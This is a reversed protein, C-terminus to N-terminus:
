KKPQSDARGMHDPKKDATGQALSKYRNFAESLMEQSSASTAQDRLFSAFARCRRIGHGKTGCFECVHAGWDYSKERPKGSNNSDKSNHRQPPPPRRSNGYRSEQDRSYREKDVGRVPAFSSANTIRDNPPDSVGVRAVTVANAPPPFSVTQRPTVEESHKAWRADQDTLEGILLKTPLTSNAVMSILAVSKLAYLPAREESQTLTLGQRYQNYRDLYQLWSEGERQSLHLFAAKASSRAESNWYRMALARLIGKYYREVLPPGSDAMAHSWGNFMDKAEGRLGGVLAGTTEWESWQTLRRRSEFQEVFVPFPPTRGDFTPNDPSYLPGSHKAKADIRVIESEILMAVIKSFSHEGEAQLGLQNLLSGSAQFAQSTDARTGRLVDGEPKGIIHGTGHDDSAFPAAHKVTPGLGLSFTSASPFTQPSPARRVQSTASPSRPADAMVKRSRHGVDPATLADEHLRRLIHSTYAEVLDRNWQAKRADGDHDAAISHNPQHRPGLDRLSRDADADRLDPQPRFRGSSGEGPTPVREDSADSLGRQALPAVTQMLRTGAVEHMHHDHTHQHHSRDDHRLHASSHVDRLIHMPHVSNVEFNSHGVLSARQYVDTAREPGGGTDQGLAAVIHSHQARSLSEPVHRQPHSIPPAVRSREHGTWDPVPDPHMYRSELQAYLDPASTSLAVDGRTLPFATTPVMARQPRPHQHQARGDMSAPSEQRAQSSAHRVPVPYQTDRRQPPFQYDRSAGELLHLQQDRPFTDMAATATGSARGSGSILTNRDQPPRFHVDTSAPRATPHPSSAVPTLAETPRSFNGSGYRDVPQDSFKKRLVMDEASQARRAQIPMPSLATPQRGNNVASEDRPQVSSTPRNSCELAGPHAPVSCVSSAREASVPSAPPPPNYFSVPSQRPSFASLRGGAFSADRDVEPAQFHSGIPNEHQEARSSSRGALLVGSAADLPQPPTLSLTSSAPDMWWDMVQHPLSRPSASGEHRPALTTTLHQQEARQDSPSRPPWPQSSSPPPHDGRALRRPDRYVVPTSAYSSDSPDQHGALLAQDTSFLYRAQGAFSSPSGLQWSSSLSTSESTLNKQNRTASPDAARDSDQIQTTMTTSSLLLATEGRQGVTTAHDVGLDSWAVTSSDSAREVPRPRFDAIAGSSPHPIRRGQHGGFPAGPDLVGTDMHDVGDWIAEGDPTARASQIPTPPRAVSRM